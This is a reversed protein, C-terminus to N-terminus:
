DEYWDPPAQQGCHECFHGRMERVYVYDHGSTEQCCKPCVARAPPDPAEDCETGCRHCGFDPATTATM